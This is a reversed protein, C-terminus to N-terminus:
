NEHRDRRPYLIAGPSLTGDIWAALAAKWPGIVADLLHIRKWKLYQYYEDEIGGCIVTGIEEKLILHCLGEASARPAVIIREELIRGDKDAAAMFVEGALDFRPAVDDGFIPILLTKKM